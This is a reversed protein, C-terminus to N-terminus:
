FGFGLLAVLPITAWGAAVATTALPDRGVMVRRALLNSYAILLSGSLSLCAGLWFGAGAGALLAGRDGAGGTGGGRGGGAGGGGGGGARVRAGPVGPAGGGAALLSGALLLSAHRARGMVTAYLSLWLPSLNNLLSNVAAPLYQQATMALLTSGVFSILGL